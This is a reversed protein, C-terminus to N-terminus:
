LLKERLVQIYLERGNNEYMVFDALGCIMAHGMGGRGKRLSGDPNIISTQVTTPDFGEGVNQISLYVRDTFIISYVRAKKAPNLTHAHVEANRLAEVLIHVLEATKEEGIIPLAHQEYAELFCMRQEPVAPIDYRQWDLVKNSLSSPMTNKLLVSM